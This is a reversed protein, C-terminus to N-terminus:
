FSRMLSTNEIYLCVYICVYTCAYMCQVYVYVFVQFLLIAKVEESIELCRMHYTCSKKHVDINNKLELHALWLTPVYGGEEM